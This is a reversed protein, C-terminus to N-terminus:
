FLVVKKEYRYNGAAVTVFYVGPEFHSLAYEGPGNRKDSFVIKGNVNHITISTEGDFLVSILGHSLKIFDNNGLVTTKTNLDYECCNSCAITAGSSFNSASADMCGWAPNDRDWASALEYVDLSILQTTGGTSFLELTRNSVEPFFVHAFTTRGEDFFADISSRDELVQIKVRNNIPTM